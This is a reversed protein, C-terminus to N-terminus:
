KTTSCEPIGSSQREQVQRLPGLSGQHFDEGQPGPLDQALAAETQAVTVPKAAGNDAEYSHSPLVTPGSPGLPQQLPLWEEVPTRRQLYLGCVM